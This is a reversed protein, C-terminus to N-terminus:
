IGEGTGKTTNAQYFSDVYVSTEGRRTEDRRTEDRRTKGNTTEDDDGRGTRTKDRGAGNRNTVQRTEKKSCSSHYFM